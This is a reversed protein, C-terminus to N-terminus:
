VRGSCVQWMCAYLSCISQTTRVTCVYHTSLAVVYHMSLAASNCLYLGPLHHHLRSLPCLLHPSPVEAGAPLCSPLSGHLCLDLVQVADEVDLSRWLLWDSPQIVQQLAGM